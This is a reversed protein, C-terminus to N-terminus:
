VNAPKKSLLKKIRTKVEAPLSDTWFLVRNEVSPYINGSQDHAEWAYRFPVAITNGVYFRGIHEVAVGFLVSRKPLLYFGFFMDGGIAERERGKANYKYQLESVFVSDPLVYEIEPKVVQTVTPNAPLRKEFNKASGSTIMVSCTSNNHLRLLVVKPNTNDRTSQREYTIFLFDNSKGIRSCPASGSRVKVGDQCSVGVHLLALLVALGLIPNNLLHDIRQYGHVRSAISKWMNM